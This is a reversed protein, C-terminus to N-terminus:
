ISFIKDMTSVYIESSIFFELINLSLLSFLFISILKSIISLNHSNYESSIDKVKTLIIGSINVNSDSLSFM